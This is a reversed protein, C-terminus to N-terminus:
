PWESLRSQRSEQPKRQRKASEELALPLTWRGLVLCSLWLWLWLWGNGPPQARPRWM